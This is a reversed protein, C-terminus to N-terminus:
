HIFRSAGIGKNHERSYLIKCWLDLDQNAPRSSVFIDENFHEFKMERKYARNSSSLMGVIHNRMLSSLYCNAETPARSEFVLGKRVERPLLAPNEKIKKTLLFM